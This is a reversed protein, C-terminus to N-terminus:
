LGRRACKRLGAPVGRAHQPRGDCQGDGRGAGPAPEFLDRATDHLRSEDSASQPMPPM